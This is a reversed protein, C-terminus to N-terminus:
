EGRKSHRRSSRGMCQEATGKREQPADGRDREEELM